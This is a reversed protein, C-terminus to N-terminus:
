HICLVYQLYEASDEVSDDVALECRSSKGSHGRQLWCGSESLWRYQLHLSVSITLRRLVRIVLMCFIIKVLLMFAFSMGMVVCIILRIM